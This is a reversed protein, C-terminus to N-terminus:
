LKLKFWIEITVRKIELKRNTNQINHELIQNLKQDREDNTTTGPTRAKYQYDVMVDHHDQYMRRRVSKALKSMESGCVIAGITEGCQSRRCTFM